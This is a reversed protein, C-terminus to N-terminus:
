YYIFKNSKQCSLSFPGPFDLETDKVSVFTFSNLVVHVHLKNSIHRCHNNWNNLMYLYSNIIIINYM